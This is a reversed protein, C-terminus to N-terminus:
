FVLGATEMIIGATVGVAYLLVTIRINEKLDDNVRFLVLLGVGAGVLLGAMVSGANLVGELYLQTLVVSSACNPILGVLGALLPGLVPKGSLIGSLSEEGVFGIVLNLVFSVLVLFVFIQLTHNLASKLIKGEKCHCHQHDCMHEIRLSEERAARKGLVLDVTFGALMGILM